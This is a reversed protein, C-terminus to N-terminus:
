TTERMSITARLPVGTRDGAFGTRALLQARAADGPGRPREGKM